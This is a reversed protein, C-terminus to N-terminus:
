VLVRESELITKMPEWYTDQWWQKIEEYQNVPEGKQVFSLKTKGSILFLTITVTSYLNRPWDAARWSQVIKSDPVLELNRGTAYGNNTFFMGGVDRSIRADGRTVLSHKKEDMLMEYVDHPRANLTITERITMTEMNNEYRPCWTRNGYNILISIFPFLPIGHVYALCFGVIQM